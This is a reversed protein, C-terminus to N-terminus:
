VGHCRFEILSPGKICGVGSQVHMWSLFLLVVLFVDHCRGTARNWRERQREKRKKRKREEREEHIETHTGRETQLKCGNIKRYKGDVFEVNLSERPLLSHLGRVTILTSRKGLDLALYM